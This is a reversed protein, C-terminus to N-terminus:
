KLSTQSLCSRRLRLGLSWVQSPGLSRDGVVGPRAFPLFIYPRRAPAHLGPCPSLRVGPGPPANRPESRAITAAVSASYIPEREPGYLRGTTSLGREYACFGVGELASAFTAM